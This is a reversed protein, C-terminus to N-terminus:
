GFQINSSVPIQALNERFYENGLQTGAQWVARMDQLQGTDLLARFLAKYAERRDTAAEGWAGM